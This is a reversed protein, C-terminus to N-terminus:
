GTGSNNSITDALPEELLYNIYKKLLEPSSKILGHKKGELMHHIIEEANTLKDCAYYANPPYILWDATGHAIVVQATIDDWQDAMAELQAQHNLKESNVSRIAAPMLWRLSWHNTPYSIWYTHEERPAMSASQLLLGDILGPYDMAMRAAVTGGYSSGHVVLRQDEGPRRRRIIDAVNEAQEKVSIMPLGVGSGGYGPRDIALLNARARLISDKMMNIWFASSSPSGHVFVVLPKAPDDGLQLYRIKRTPGELYGLTAEGYEGSAFAATMKDDNWQSRTLQQIGSYVYFIGATLVLFLSLLILKKRLKKQSKV